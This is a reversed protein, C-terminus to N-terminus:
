RVWHPIDKFLRETFAMLLNMMWPMAVIVTVFVGIIKPVFVLTMEQVQTVAQFLSVMFGIVLGVLLAPAAILLTLKVSEAMIGIVFDTTM